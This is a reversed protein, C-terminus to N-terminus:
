AFTAKLCALQAKDVVKAGYVHLGKVADAFRKEPRYAETSVIQEAYTAASDVGGTITYTVKESVNASVCNNSLYIDFGAAQAVLGTKLIGEAMEGGTKVFRDDLLILAYMEPPIVLWRGATPVNAKDLITRMKVVNEYVNSSTLAVASTSVTNTADAAGALIGAIYKDSADALGYAARTMAKDMIDGAAQAADIDDVQFNFYKAQDITLTQDTTALTEPGSSFDTNQTYTGITVAGITNIHVTDGMKKIEGEYDRNVVNAFVHSKDLANLLRASWLKPIFGTVAM